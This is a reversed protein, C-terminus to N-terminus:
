KKAYNNIYRKLSLNWAYLNAYIIDIFKIKNNM